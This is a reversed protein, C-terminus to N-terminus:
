KVSSIAPCINQIEREVKNSWLKLIEAPGYRWLNIMFAPELNEVAHVWGRPLYLVEGPNLTVQIPNAKLLLPFKTKDLKELTELASSWELSGKASVMYLFPHDQPSFLTWRKRGIMQYVFNDKSDFHGQTYTGPMGMWISPTLFCSEPNGYFPPYGILEGFEESTILGKKAFYVLKEEERAERKNTTIDVFDKISMRVRNIIKKGSKSIEDKYEGQRVDGFLMHGYKSSIYEWHWKSLVEQSIMDTFVVPLGVPAIYSNFLDSSPTKMRAVQRIRPLLSSARQITDLSDISNDSWGKLQSLDMDKYLLPTESESMEETPM